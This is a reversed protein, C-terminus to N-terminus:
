TGKIAGLGKRLDDANMAPVFELEANLGSFFRNLLARYKPPTKCTSSSVNRM